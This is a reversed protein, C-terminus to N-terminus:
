NLGLVRFWVQDVTKALREVSSDELFNGVIFANYALRSVMVSLAASLTEADDTANVLGAEQLQEIMGANRQVFRRAREQRQKHFAPESLAVQELLAMEAANRRFTELYARNTQKIAEKIEEVSGGRWDLSRNRMRMELEVQDLVASLLAARDEFYTYLSGVSCGAAQAIDSLRAAHYGDRIFVKRASTLIAARRTATTAARTSLPETPM